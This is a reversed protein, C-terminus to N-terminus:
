RLKNQGTLLRVLEKLNHKYQNLSDKGMKALIASIDTETCECCSFGDGNCVGCRDPLDPGNPVGNCDLCSTGNGDCVGCVDYEAGGNPVGACDACSSNDGFCIGCLDMDSNNGDCVGCDDVVRGNEDPVMDCNGNTDLDDLVMDWDSTNGGVLMSVAGVNHFDAPGFLGIQTFDAFPIEITAHSLSSNLAIIRSSAREGTADAADYVTFKVPLPNGLAFDFSEVVVRLATGGDQTFDIGGLGAAHIFGPTSNGDWQM